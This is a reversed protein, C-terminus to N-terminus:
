ISKSNATATTLMLTRWRRSLKSCENSFNYYVVTALHTQRYADHLSPLCRVMLWSFRKTLLASAGCGSCGDGADFLCLAYLLFAAMTVFRAKGHFVWPISNHSCTM